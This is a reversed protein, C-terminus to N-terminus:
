CVVCIITYSLRRYRYIHVAACRVALHCSSCGWISQRWASQCQRPAPKGHKFCRFAFDPFSSFRLLSQFHYYLYESSEIGTLFESRFICNQFSSGNYNKIYYCPPPLFVLSQFLVFFHLCSNENKVSTWILLKRCSCCLLGSTYISWDWFIDRLEQSWNLYRPVIMDHFLRRLRSWPRQLSHLRVYLPVVSAKFFLTWIVSFLIQHM